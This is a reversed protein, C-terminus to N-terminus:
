FSQSVDKSHTLCLGIKPDHGQFKRESFVQTWQENWMRVFDIQTIPKWVATSPGWVFDEVWRQRQVPDTAAPRIFPIQSRWLHQVCIPPPCLLGRMNVQANKRAGWRTRQLHCSTITRNRRRVRHGSPVQQRVSTQQHNRTLVLAGCRVQQSRGGPLLCRLNTEEGASSSRQEHTAREAQNERRPRPPCTSRSRGLTIPHKAPTSALWWAM